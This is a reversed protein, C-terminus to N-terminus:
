EHRNNLEEEKCDISEEIGNFYSEENSMSHQLESIENSLSNVKVEMEKLRYNDEQTVREFLNNITTEYFDKIRASLVLFDSHFEKLAYDKSLTLMTMIKKDNNIGLAWGLLSILSIGDKTLHIWIADSIYKILRDPVLYSPVISNLPDYEIVGANLNYHEENILRLVMEQAQTKSYELQKAFKEIIYEALVSSISNLIDYAKEKKEDDSLFINIKVACIRKYDYYSFNFKKRLTVVDTEWKESINSSATFYIPPILKYIREGTNIFKQRTNKIKRRVQEITKNLSIIQERICEIKFSYYNVRETSFSSIDKKYSTLRSCLYSKRAEFLNNKLYDILEDEFKNFGSSKAYDFDLSNDEDPEELGKSISEYYSSIAYVKSRQQSSISSLRQETLRIVNEIELKNKIRDVRNICYFINGNNSALYKKIFEIDPDSLGRESCIYVSAISKKIQEATIATDEKRAGLGITDIFVIHNDRLLPNNIYVIADSIGEFRSIKGTKEAEELDAISYSSFKVYDEYTMHVDRDNYKVIACNNEGYQIQTIIATCAKASVPLANIGMLANVFTSKGVSFDGIVSINIDKRNAFLYAQKLQNQFGTLKKQGEADLSKPFNSIARIIEDINFLGLNNTDNCEEKSSGYFLSNIFSAIRELLGM